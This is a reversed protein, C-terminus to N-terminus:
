AIDMNMLYAFIFNTIVFVILTDFSYIFTRSATLHHLAIIDYSILVSSKFYFLIRLTAAISTLMRKNCTMSAIGFCYTAYLIFCYLIYIFLRVM